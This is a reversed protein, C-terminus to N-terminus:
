KAAGGDDFKISSSSDFVQKNGDVFSVGMAASYGSTSELVLYRHSRDIRFAVQAMPGVTHTLTKCSFNPRDGECIGAQVPHESLNVFYEMVSPDATLNMAWRHNSTRLSGNPGRTTPHRGDVTSLMNGRLVEQTSIVSIGKTRSVVRIWGYGPKFQALEVRVDLTRGAAVAKEIEQVVCGAASYTEIKVRQEGKGVNSLHMVETNGIGFPVGLFFADHSNRGVPDLPHPACSADAGLAFGACALAFFALVSRVM